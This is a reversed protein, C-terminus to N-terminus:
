ETHEGEAEAVPACAPSSLGQAMLESHWQDFEAQEVVRVPGVMSYHSLGCLEACEVKYNGVITPTFRLTTIQGPVLDQKVRFQPVWFSHLVDKSTMELRVRKNVPIVMEQAQKDDYCFEWTWQRGNVHVVFEDEEARTITALTDIGFFGFLVVLILPGVTWGIELGTHGEFHEGESDDGDRKRFVFLTYLMFVVVLAFLGAILILHWNILQDITHSEVSAQLPMPLASDLILYVALWGIAILVGAIIFHRKDSFSKPM